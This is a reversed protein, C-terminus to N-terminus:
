RPCVPTRPPSMLGLRVRRPLGPLHSSRTIKGTSSLPPERTPKKGGTTEGLCTPHSLVSHSKKPLGEQRWTRGLKEGKLTVRLASSPKSSSSLAFGMIPCSLIQTTPPTQLRSPWGLFGERVGSGLQPAAGWGSIPLQSPAPPPSTKLARDPQPPCVIQLHGMLVHQPCAQNPTGAGGVRRPRSSAM